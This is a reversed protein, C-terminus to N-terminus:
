FVCGISFSICLWWFTCIGSGGVVFAESFSRIFSIAVMAFITSFCALFMVMLYV